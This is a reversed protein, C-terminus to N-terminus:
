RRRCSRSRRRPSRRRDRSPGGPAAARGRSRGRSASRRGAAPRGGPGPRSGASPGRPLPAPRRTAVSGRRRPPRRRRSASRAARAARRRRGRSRRRPARRRTCSRGSAGAGPGRRRARARSGPPRRSRAPCRSATPRSCPAPGPPATGDRRAARHARRARLREDGGDVQAGLQRGAVPAQDGVRQGGRQRREVGAGAVARDQHEVPAPRRRDDHAPVAAMDLRARVAVPREDVVAGARRQAAMVAAPRPRRRGAARGARRGPDAVQAAPGFPHLALDALPKGPRRM